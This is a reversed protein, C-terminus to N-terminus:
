GPTVRGRKPSSNHSAALSSCLSILTTGSARIAASRPTFAMCSTVSPPTKPAQRKYVDGKVDVVEVEGLGTPAKINADLHAIRDGLILIDCKGIPEPSYVNANKIIKIM